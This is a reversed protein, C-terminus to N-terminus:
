IINIYIIVFQHFSVINLCVYGNIFSNIMKFIQIPADRSFGSSFMFRFGDQCNLQYNSLYIYNKNYSDKLEQAAPICKYQTHPSPQMRPHINDAIM